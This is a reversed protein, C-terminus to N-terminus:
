GTRGSALPRTRLILYPPKHGASGGNLPPSLPLQAVTWYLWGDPGFTLGDPWLNEPHTALRRYGRDGAPIVGIARSEVETLYLNGAEDAKIGGVNPREAYREVKSELAAASLAGDLLDALRVRWVARGCLPGYYLWEGALAIGDCGVRMPATSGDKERKVMRRGDVVIPVAEAATSAHGELVRRAVGDRLSVVILAGQTGDGGHGVGEDAIVATGSEPHLVFDNPETTRRLADPTLPITRAHRDAATDWAVFKPPVGSRAGMDLMWVTDGEARLGLVADLRSEARGDAANWAANPFPRLADGAVVESVREPTEFMPHHSVFLRGSATFVPNGLPVPLRHAVEATAPVGSLNVAGGGQGRALGPLLLSAGLVARRSAPLPM